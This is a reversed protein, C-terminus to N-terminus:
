SSAVYVRSAIVMARSPPQIVGVKRPRQTKSFGGKSIHSDAMDIFVNPMPRTVALSGTIKAPARTQASHKRITHLTRDTAAPRAAAAMASDLWIRNVMARCLMVSM